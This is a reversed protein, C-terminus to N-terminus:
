MRATFLDIITRVAYDKPWASGGGRVEKYKKLKENKSEKIKM